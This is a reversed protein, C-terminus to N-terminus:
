AEGRARIQNSAFHYFNHNGDTLTHLDMCVKACAAREKAAVLKAFAELHDTIIISNDDRGEADCLGAQKAMEIIEDQEYLGLRVNEVHLAQLHQEAELRDNRARLLRNEQELEAVMLDLEREQDNM